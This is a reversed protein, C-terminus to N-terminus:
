PMMDRGTKRDAIIRTREQFTIPIRPSSTGGDDVEDPVETRLGIVLMPPEPPTEWIKGTIESVFPPIPGSDADHVAPAADVATITATMDSGPAIKTIILSVSEQGAEGFMVLDNIETDIPASLSWTYQDPIPEVEQSLNKLEALSAQEPYYYVGKIWGSFNRNSFKSGGITLDGWAARQYTASGSVVGNIALAMTTAGFGIAAKYPKYLQLAGLNPKCDTASRGSLAYGNVGDDTVKLELSWDETPSSLTLVPKEAAFGAPVWDVLITGESFDQGSATESFSFLDTPRTVHAITTNILSTMFQGNELQVGWLGFSFDTTFTEPFEGQWNGSGSAFNPGQQMGIAMLTPATETNFSIRIRYWGLGAEEFAGDLFTMGNGTVKSTITQAYMDIVTAFYSSGTSIEANFYRGKRNKLYFSLTKNGTGVGTLENVCQFSGMAIPDPAVLTGTKMHDPADLTLDLMDVDQASWATDIPNSWRVFNTASPEMLLGLFRGDMSYDYRPEHPAALKLQGHTDRYYAYANRSFTGGSRSIFNKSQIPVVTSTGNSRRIRANKPALSLIDIEEDVKLVPPTASTTDHTIRGYGSGWRPVDHAVKVLDGRQCVLHEMDTKWVYENQRLRANAMHYRALRWAAHPHTVGRLELTELKTATAVTYGDDAVLMEDQQWNADPNIFRVRLGHITDAFGRSGGFDWSNRPTFHQVPVTQPKDQVVSYLGDKVAFTARGAACIDAILQALTTEGDVVTSYGFGKATCFNAWNLIADFDIRNPELLRANAPCETLLWYLIWAPNTSAQRIFTTGNWVPIIQKLRCSFQGLSGNVQESARVKMAFKTTSTLSPKSRKFYRASVLILDDVRAGQLSDVNFIGGRNIVRVEYIGPTPFNWNIASRRAGRNKSITNMQNFSTWQVTVDGTLNAYATMELRPNLWASDGVRRYHIELINGTEIMKNDSTLAFLGSPWSFELALGSTDIATTIITTTLIRVLANDPQAPNQTPTIDINLGVEEVDNTYLYTNGASIEYDLGDISSLDMEGIRMESVQLDGYGLDYLCRIFQNSGSSESYFNAALTPFLVFDGIVCPISGYLNARNGGGTVAYIRAMEGPMGDGNGKPMTPKIFAKIALNGVVSIATGALAGLIPYGAAALGGSAVTAAVMVVITLILTMNKAARESKGPYGSVEITTGAKPRVYAWMNAPVTVGNVRVDIRLPDLDGLIESLTGGESIASSFITDPKLVHPRGRLFIAKDPIVVEASLQLSESSPDTDISARSEENGNRDTM